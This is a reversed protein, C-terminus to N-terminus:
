STHQDIEIHRCITPCENGFPHVIDYTAAPFEKVLVATGSRDLVTVSYVDGDAPAGGLTIPWFMRLWFIQDATSMLLVTTGASAGGDPTSTLVIPVGTNPAPAANLSAFDGVLCDGNRCLSVKSQVLQGFAQVAAPLDVQITAAPGCASPDTCAVGQEDDTTCAVTGSLAALFAFLGLSARM